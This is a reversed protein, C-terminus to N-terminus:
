KLLIENLADSIHEYKFTFGEKLLKKPVVYAGKLLTEAGEAYRYYLLKQPIHFLVRKNTIKGFYQMFTKVDIQNPSVLNYVGRMSNEEISSIFASIVDDIHIWSFQQKGDGPVAGLGIKFALKFEEIAGGDKGLVVGLRFIVSRIGIDEAKRAEDEWNRALLALYSTGFKTSDDEHVLDEKYIGVASASIFLSPKNELQSMVKVIKKTTEIRSIYLEHKYMEDWKKVIPAGCLNIVVECGDISDLLAESNKFHERGIRVVEYGSSVLVRSIHTGIFGSAGCIAIRLVTGIKQKYRLM